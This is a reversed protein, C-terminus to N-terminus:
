LSGDILTFQKDAREALSLDHTVLVVSTKFERQLSQFLDYVQEANKQDLNGTPEDALICLPDTVLARAIAVRQREGGSLEGVRHKFRHSLGVKNLLMESKNKAEKPLVKRILLPMAVNEVANFEPLLHHFQYVFGLYRNRLKGKKAESLHSFKKGALIIEGGTPKDLGGLCHLLTSKGSGSAGVIALMENSQVTLNINKLVEVHLKGESFTKTLNSCQLITDSM